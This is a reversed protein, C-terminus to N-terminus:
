PLHLFLALVDDLINRASARELIASATEFM